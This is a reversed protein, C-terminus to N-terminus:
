GTSSHGNDGAPAAPTQGGKDSFAAWAFNAAVLAMLLPAGAVIFRWVFSPEETGALQLQLYGSLGAASMMIWIPVVFTGKFFSAVIPNQKKQPAPQQPAGTAQQGGARANGWLSWGM